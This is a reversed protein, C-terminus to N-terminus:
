SFEGEDTVTKQPNLVWKRLRNFNELTPYGGGHLYRVAEDCWSIDEITKM